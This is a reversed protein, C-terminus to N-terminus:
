KYKLVTVSLPYITSDSTVTGDIGISDDYGYGYSNFYVHVQQDYQNIVSAGYQSYNPLCSYNSQFYLSSYGALVGHGYVFNSHGCFPFFGAAQAGAVYKLLSQYSGNAGYISQDAFASYFGFYNFDSQQMTFSNSGTTFTGGPNTYTGMPCNSAAPYPTFHMLNDNEVHGSLFCGSGGVLKAIEDASIVVNNGVQKYYNWLDQNYTNWGASEFGTPIVNPQTFVSSPSLVALLEQTTPNTNFYAPLNYVGTYQSMATKMNQLIQTGSYNYYQSKVGMFEDINNGINLANMSVPVSVADVYSMDTYVASLSSVNYEFYLYPVNQVTDPMSGKAATLASDYSIYFRGGASGGHNSMVPTYLTIGTPPVALTYPTTSPQSEPIITGLYRGNTLTYLIPIAYPYNMQAPAGGVAAYLYIKSSNLPANIHIPAYNPVPAVAYVDMDYTYISDGSTNTLTIGLSNGVEPNSISLSGSIACSEGVNITKNSCGDSGLQWLIPKPMNILATGLKVSSSSINVFNFVPTYVKNNYITGSLSNVVPNFSTQTAGSITLNVPTISYSHKDYTSSAQLTTSGSGVGTIKILCTRQALTGSSLTCSTRNLTALSPNTLNFNVIASEVGSSNSLSLTVTQSGGNAINVSTTNFAMTGNIVQDAPIVTVTNNASYTLPSGSSSPYNANATISDMGTSKGSIILECSNKIGSSLICSSSEVTAVSPTANTISVLMDSIGSSNKLSLTVHNSSGSVVSEQSPAFSLTGQVTDSIVSVPVSATTYGSASANIQTSGISLGKIYIICSSPAGPSSSLTCTNNLVSATSSSSSSINVVLGSVGSSGNLQLTVETSSGNTVKVSSEIFELVGSNSGSGSSSSGDGQCSTLAMMIFIVIFFYCKKM